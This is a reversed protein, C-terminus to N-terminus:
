ETRGNRFILGGGKGAALGVDAEKAEGPGNVACGMVAVKLPAKLRAIEREVRVAIREINVQSRGCSPCTAPLSLRDQDSTRNFDRLSILNVRRPACHVCLCSLVRPSRDPDFLSYYGSM